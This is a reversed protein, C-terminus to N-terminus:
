DATLEALVDEPLDFNAYVEQVDDLDDFADLLRLIKRGGESDLSVTVSPAMTVEASDYAIGASDFADRVARLATPPTVVLLTADDPQVDDAGAELAIEMVRDEDVDSRPVSLQGRRSFLYGVSGTEGLSGGHRSFVHRVDAATRNRNDTYCEVLVAVGSPGYGEYTVSDLVQGELAGSARKIARDINDSPVSNSRARDVADALAANGEISAGGTRAAVEVGRILRAFLQGRKADKAGKQHKITAWKSHGSM